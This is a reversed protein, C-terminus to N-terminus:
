RTPSTFSDGDATIGTAKSYLTTDHFKDKMSSGIDTNATDTSTLLANSLECDYNTVHIVYALTAQNRTENGGSKIAATLGYTNIAADRDLSSRFSNDTYWIGIYGDGNNTTTGVDDLYYVVTYKETSIAAGSTGSLIAGITTGNKTNPANLETAVEEALDKLNDYGTVGTAAKQFGTAIYGPKAVMNSTIHTKVAIQALKVEEDVRKMTNVYEAETARSLIGNRGTLMAISVGALILLVIITVVLAILTIGNNSKKNM